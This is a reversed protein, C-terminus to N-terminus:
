HSRRSRRRGALHSNCIAENHVNLCWARTVNGEDLGDKESKDKNTIQSGHGSVIPWKPSNNRFATVCYHQKCHFVFRDGSKAGAVLQKM